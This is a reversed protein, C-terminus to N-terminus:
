SVATAGCSFKGDSSVTLYQSSSTRFAVMEKGAVTQVQVQTRTEPNMTDTRSWDLSGDPRFALFKDRTNRWALEGNALSVLEFQSAPLGHSSMARLVGDETTVLHRDQQDKVVSSQQGDKSGYVLVESLVANGIFGALVRIRLVNVRPTPKFHIKWESGKGPNTPLTIMNGVIIADAINITLDEVPYLYGDVQLKITFQKFIHLDDHHFLLEIYAVTAPQIYFDVFLNNLNGGYAWGGRGTLLNDHSKNCPFGGQEISAWCSTIFLKSWPNRLACTQHGSDARDVQYARKHCTCAKQDMMTGTPRSVGTVGAVTQMFLSSANMTIDSHDFTVM